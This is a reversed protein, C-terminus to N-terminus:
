SLLDPRLCHPFRREACGQNGRPTTGPQVSRGDEHEWDDGVVFFQTSANEFARVLREGVERTEFVKFNFDLDFDFAHDHGRSRGLM